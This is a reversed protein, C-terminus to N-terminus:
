AAADERDPHCTCTTTELCVRVGGYTFQAWIVSGTGDGWSSPYVQFPASFAAAVRCVLAIRERGTGMTREVQVHLQPGSEAVRAGDLGPHEARLDDWARAREGSPAWFLPAFTLTNAYTM